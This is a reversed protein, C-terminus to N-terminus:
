RKSHKDFFKFVDPMSAGIIPGHTIGPYEKYEYNMQLEKNTDVRTRVREVTVVEDAAGM